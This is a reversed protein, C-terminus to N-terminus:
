GTNLIGAARGQILRKALLKGAYDSKEPASSLLVLAQASTEINFERSYPVGTKPHRSIAPAKFPRNIYFTRADRLRKELPEEQAGYAGTALGLSVATVGKLLDRRNVGRKPNNSDKM